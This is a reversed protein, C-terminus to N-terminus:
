GKSHKSKVLILALVPRQGGSFSIKGGIRGPSSGVVKRDRHTRHELWQGIGAQSERLAVNRNCTIRALRGSEDNNNKCLMDNPPHKNM